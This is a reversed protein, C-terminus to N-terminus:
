SQPNSIESQPNDAVTAAAPIVGEHLATESDANRLQNVKDLVGNVFTPSDKAGYRRALEIAENIVVPAPADATAALLEATGLRLVNRDVAAMRALRWNEAAAALLRDIEDQRAVVSDYLELCFPEHAADRLRERVFREIVPREATPNADRWFLLQMAIERARSRRTM